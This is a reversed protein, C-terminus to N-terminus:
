KFLNVLFFGFFSIFVNGWDGDYFSIFVERKFSFKMDVLNWKVFKMNWILFMVSDVDLFIWRFGFLRNEERKEGYFWVGWWKKWVYYWFFWGKLYVFDIVM